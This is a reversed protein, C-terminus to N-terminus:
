DQWASHLLPRRGVENAGGGWWVKCSLWWSFLGQHIKWVACLLLGVNKMENQMPKKVESMNWVQSLHPRQLYHPRKVRRTWKLKRITAIPASNFYRNYCVTRKFHHVCFAHQDLQCILVGVIWNVKKKNCKVKFGSRNKKKIFRDSPYNRFYRLCLVLFNCSSNPSRHFQSSVTFDNM